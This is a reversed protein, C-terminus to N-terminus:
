RPPPRRGPPSSRVKVVEAEFKDVVFVLEPILKAEKKARGAKASRQLDREKRSLLARWSEMMSAQATPALSRSPSRSLSRSLSLRLAM